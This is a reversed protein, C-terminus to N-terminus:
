VRGIPRRQLALVPLFPAVTASFPEALLSPWSCKVLWM